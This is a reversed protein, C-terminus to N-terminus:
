YRNLEFVNNEDRYKQYNAYNLMKQSNTYEYEKHIAFINM